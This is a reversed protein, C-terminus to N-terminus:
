RRSFSRGSSCGACYVEEPSREGMWRFWGVKDRIMTRLSNTYGVRRSPHYDHITWKRMPEYIKNIQEVWCNQCDHSKWRKHDSLLSDRFGGGPSTESHMETDRRLLQADSKVAVFLALWRSEPWQSAIIPKLSLTIVTVTERSTLDCVAVRRQTVELNHEPAADCRRTGELLGVRGQRSLSRVKSRELGCCRCAPALWRKRLNMPQAYLPSNFDIFTFSILILSLSPFSFWDFHFSHSDIGIFAILILHLSSFSFWNFRLSHFDIWTFLILILELSFFSFWNFRLSHSDIWTFLILILQFSPFSFGHFDLPILILDLWSFSFSFWNFHLSHSDIFTFRFPFWHFHLSHSDIWIFLILILHLSSFSFSNLHLFHFDVFTFLILIFWLSDSHSDILTLPIFM